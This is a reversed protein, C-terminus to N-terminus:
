QKSPQAYKNKNNDATDIPPIVSLLRIVRDTFSEGAKNKLEPVLVIDTDAYASFPILLEMRVGANVITPTTNWYDVRPYITSGQQKVRFGVKTTVVALDTDYVRNIDFASMPKFEPTNAVLPYIHRVGSSNDPIPIIREPLVSYYISTSPEQVITINTYSKTYADVSRPDAGWLEVYMEALVKEVSADILRNHFVSEKDIRPLLNKILSRIENKQM